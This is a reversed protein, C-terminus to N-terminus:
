VQKMVEGNKMSGFRSLLEGFQEVFVIENIEADLYM